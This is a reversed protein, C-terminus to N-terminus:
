SISISVYLKVKIIKYIISMQVIIIIAPSLGQQVVRFKFKYQRLLLYGNKIRNFDKKNVAMELGMATKYKDSGVCPQRPEHGRM